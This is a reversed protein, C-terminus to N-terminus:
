LDQDLPIVSFLCIIKEPAPASWFFFLYDNVNTSNTKNQGSVYAGFSHRHQEM